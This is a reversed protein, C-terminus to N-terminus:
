DLLAEAHNRLFAILRATADFTEHGAGATKRAPDHVENICVRPRYEGSNDSYRRTPGLWVSPFLHASRPHIQAEWPGPSALKLLKRLETKEKSTLKAM